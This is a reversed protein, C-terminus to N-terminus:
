DVIEMRYGCTFTEGPQIAVHYPKDEFRGTENAYAPSGHWPEICVYPANKGPMSWIALVPMDFSFRLGKRTDRHILEVARSNLGCLVYTDLRDYDSHKLPLTCRDSEFPVPETGDLNHAPNNNLATEM